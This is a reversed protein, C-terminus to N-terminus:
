NEAIRAGTPSRRAGELAPRGPFPAPGVVRRAQTSEEDGLFAAYLAVFELFSAGMTLEASLHFLVGLVLFVPWSRRWFLAVVFTGEFLLAGWSLWVCLDHQGSLWVGLPRDLAAGKVYVIYQLTSGNAWQLGGNGLKSAFASFYVLALMWRTLLLPWIPVDRAVPSVGVRRRALVADVSLERGAPVWALAFTAILILAEAHHFSGFSYLYGHLVLGGWAFVLLSARTRYGVFALLGVVLLTWYLAVAGPDVLAPLGSPALTLVRLIPLPEYAELAPTLLELRRALDMRMLSVLQAAVICLRFIALQRASGARFWYANWREIISM